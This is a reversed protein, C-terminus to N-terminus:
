DACVANVGLTEHATQIAALAGETTCKSDATKAVFRVNEGTSEMHRNYDEVAIEIINKAETSENILGDSFDGVYCLNYEITEAAAKPQTIMPLTPVAIAYGAIAGGVVSAAIMNRRSIKKESSM